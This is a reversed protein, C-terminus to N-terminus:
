REIITRFESKNEVGSLSQSKDIISQETDGRNVAVLLSVAIISVIFLVMPLNSNKKKATLVLSDYSNDAYQKRQIKNENKRDKSESDKGEKSKKNDEPNIEGFSNLINILKGFFSFEENTKERKPLIEAQKQNCHAQLSELEFDDEDNSNQISNLKFDEEHSDEHEIDLEKSRFIFALLEKEYENFMYASFRDMYQEFNSFVYEYAGKFERENQYRVKVNESNREILEHMKGNRIMEKNYDEEGNICFANVCLDLAALFYVFNNISELRDLSYDTIPPYASGGSIAGILLKKAETKNSDKAKIVELYEKLMMKFKVTIFSSIDEGYEAQEIRKILYGEFVHLLTPTRTLDGFSPQLDKETQNGYIAAYWSDVLAFSIEQESSKDAIEQVKLEDYTYILYPILLEYRGKGEFTDKQAIVQIWEEASFNAIVNLINKDVGSSQLSQYTIDIRNNM